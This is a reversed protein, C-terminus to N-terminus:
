GGSGTEGEWQCWKGDWIEGEMDSVMRSRILSELPSKGEGQGLLKEAKGPM